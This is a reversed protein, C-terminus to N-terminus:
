PLKTWGSVPVPETDGDATRVQMQRDTARVNHLVTVIEDGDTVRDDKRFLYQDAVAPSASPRAREAGSSRAEGAPARRITPTQKPASGEPLLLVWGFPLFRGASDQAVTRSGGESMFRTPVDPAGDRGKRGRKEGYRKDELQVSKSEFHSYRGVKLLWAGASDLATQLKEQHAPFGFASLLADMLADTRTGEYFRYREYFWLATHHANSAQRLDDLRPSRSPIARPNDGGGKARAGARERREALAAEDLAALTIKFPKAAFVGADAVSALREVHIQAGQRAIDIPGAKTCNAVHVRDIVTGEPELTADSVSIDRLPDQQTHRREYDFAVGQVEESQSGTKGPRVKEVRTAFEQIEDSPISRMEAALWATRLAGKVSSGPVIPVGGSRVFPGIHGRRLPNRMVEEIQQLSSQSIAIRERVAGDAARGVIDQAQKVGGQSLARVYQARLTPSMAAIVGPPDFRELVPPSGSRIRYGDPTMTTGDGIHVPTLAYGV